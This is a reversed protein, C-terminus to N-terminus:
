TAEAESWGATETPDPAGDQTEVRMGNRVQTMCAQTNLVGDVVLLCDFCIGMMCYVGRPAASASTSRLRLIGAALLAAALSQGPVVTVDRGEFVIRIPAVPSERLLTFGASEDARPGGDAM